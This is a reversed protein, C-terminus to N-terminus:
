RDLSSDSLKGGKGEVVEEKGSVVGKVGGTIWAPRDWNRREFIEALQRDNERRRGEKERDFQRRLEPSLSDYLQSQSPTTLSMFGYGTGMVIITWLTMATIKRARESTPLYKSM